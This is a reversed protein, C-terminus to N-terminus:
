VLQESQKFYLFITKQCGLVILAFRNRAPTFATTLHFLLHGDFNWCAIDLFQRSMVISNSVPILFSVRIKSCISEYNINIIKAQFILRLLNPRIM